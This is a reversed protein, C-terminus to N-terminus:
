FQLVHLEKSQVSYTIKSNGWNWIHYGPKLDATGSGHRLSGINMNLCLPPTYTTGTETPHRRNQPLLERERLKGHPLM